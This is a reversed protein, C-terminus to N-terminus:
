KSLKIIYSWQGEAKIAQQRTKELHTIRTALSECLGHYHKLRDRAHQLKTELMRIESLPQVPNVWDGLCAEYECGPWHDGSVPDVPSLCVPCFHNAFPQSSM